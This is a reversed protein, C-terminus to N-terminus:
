RREHLETDEEYCVKFQPSAACQAAIHDDIADIEAVSLGPARRARILAQVAVNTEYAAKFEPSEACEMAIHHQLFNAM